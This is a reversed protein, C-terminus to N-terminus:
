YTNDQNIIWSVFTLKKKIICTSVICKICSLCSTPFEHVFGDFCLRVCVLVFSCLHTHNLVFFPWVLVVLCCPGVYVLVCHIGASVRLMCELVLVFGMLRLAPHHQPPQTDAAQLLHLAGQGDEGRGRAQRRDGMLMRASWTLNLRLTWDHHPGPAPHQTPSLPSSSPSSPSALELDLEDTPTDEEKDDEFVSVEAGSTWRGGGAGFGFTSDCLTLLSYMALSVFPPLPLLSLPPLQLLLLLPRSCPGSCLGGRGRKM